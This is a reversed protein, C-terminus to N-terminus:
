KSNKMEDIYEFYDEEDMELILFELLEDWNIYKELFEEAETTLSEENCGFADYFKEELMDGDRYIYNRKIYEELIEQLKGCDELVNIIKSMEIENLFDYKWELDPREEIPISKILKDIISNNDDNQEIVAAMNDSDLEWPKSKLRNILKNTVEKLITNYNTNIDLSSFVPNSSWNIIVKGIGIQKLKTLFFDKYKTETMKAIPIKDIIIKFDSVLSSNIYKTLLEHIENYDGSNIIKEDKTNWFHFHGNKTQELAFNLENDLKNMFYILSGYDGFHKEFHEEADYVTCWSKDGYKESMQKTYTIFVIWETTNYLIKIDNKNESLIDTYVTNQNLINSLDDLSDIRDIRNERIKQKIRHYKKIMKIVNDVDYDKTKNWRDCMWQFYSKNDTPDGEKFKNLVEIPILKSYKITIDEVRSESLFFNESIGTLGILSYFANEFFQDIEYHFGELDTYIDSKESTFYGYLYDQGEFGIYGEYQEEGIKLVGNWRKHSGYNPEDFNDVDEVSTLEIKAEYPGIEDVYEKKDMEKLVGTTSQGKSFKDLYEKELPSLSDKGSKGIKDLINDLTKDEYKKLFKM